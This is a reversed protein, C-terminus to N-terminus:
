NSRTQTGLTPWSEGAKKRVPMGVVAREYIARPVKFRILDGTKERIVLIYSLRSGYYRSEHAPSEKREVVGDFAM